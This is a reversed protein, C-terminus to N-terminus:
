RLGLKKLLKHRKSKSTAREAGLRSTEGRSNNVLEEVDKLAKNETVTDLAQLNDRLSRSKPHNPGVVKEYGVLAKSYM